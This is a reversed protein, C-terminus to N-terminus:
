KKAPRALSPRECGGEVSRGSQADDRRQGSGDGSRPQGDALYADAAEAPWLSQRAPQVLVPDARDDVGAV